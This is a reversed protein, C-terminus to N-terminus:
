LDWTTGFIKGSSWHEGTLVYIVGDCYESRPIWYPCLYVLKIVSETQNLPKRWLTTTSFHEVILYFIFKGRDTAYNGVHPLLLVIGCMRLKPVLLLCTTFKVDWSRWLLSLVRAGASSSVPYPVPNTQRWM